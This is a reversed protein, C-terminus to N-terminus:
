RDSGAVRDTAVLFLQKAHESTPHILELVLAFSNKMVREFAFAKGRSIANSACPEERCDDLHGRNEELRVDQLSGM